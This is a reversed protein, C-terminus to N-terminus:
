DNEIGFCYKKIDQKHEKIFDEVFRENTCYIQGISQFSGTKQTYLPNRKDDHAFKIYYKLQKYNKWDIVGSNNEFDREMFRLFKVKDREFEAEEKTRFVKTYEITQRDIANGSNTYSYVSGSLSALWYVEGIKPIYRGFTPLVESLLERDIELDGYKKILESLKIMQAKSM